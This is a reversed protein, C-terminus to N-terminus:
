EIIQPGLYEIEDMHYNEPVGIEELWRCSEGGDDEKAEQNEGDAHVFDTPKIPLVESLAVRPPKFSTTKLRYCTTKNRKSPVAPLPLEKYYSCDRGDDKSYPPGLVDLVACTTIATFEHINGGTTPYLVSTNCPATFDSDAILKAM